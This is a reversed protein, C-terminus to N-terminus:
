LKKIKRADVKHKNPMLRVFKSQIWHNLKCERADVGVVYLLKVGGYDACDIIKVEKGHEDSPPSFRENKKGGDQPLCVMAIDNQWVQYKADNKIGIVFENTKRQIKCISNCLVFHNDHTDGMNTVLKVMLYWRGNVCLKSFWQVEFVGTQNEVHILSGIKIYEKSGERTKDYCPLWYPGNTTDTDGRGTLVGHPVRPERGMYYIADHVCAALPSRLATVGYIEENRRCMDQVVKVELDGSLDEGIGIVHDVNKVGDLIRQHNKWLLGNAATENSRSLTGYVYTYNFGLLIFKYIHQQYERILAFERKGRKWPEINKKLVQDFFIGNDLTDTYKTHSVCNSVSCFLYQILEYLVVIEEMRVIQEDQTNMLPIDDLVKSPDRLLPAFRELIADPMNVVCEFVRITQMMIQMKSHPINQKIEVRTWAIHNELFNVILSVRWDRGNDGFLINNHTYDGFLTETLGQAPITPMKIPTVLVINMARKTWINPQTSPIGKLGYMVTIPSLLQTQNDQDIMSDFLPKLEDCDYGQWLTDGIYRNVTRRVHATNLVQNNSDLIDYDRSLCKHLNGLKGNLLIGYLKMRELEQM